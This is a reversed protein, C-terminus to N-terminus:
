LEGATLEYVRNMNERLWVVDHSVVLLSFSKRKQETILVSWIVQRTAQDVSSFSEDLMLLDPDGLLVSIIGMRQIEGGSLEHPYKNMHDRNLGFLGLLRLIEEMDIKHVSQIERISTSLICIPNFASGASQPLYRIDLEWLRNYSSAQTMNSIRCEKWSLEHESLLGKLLTTKGVGSSGYIGVTESLGVSFEPLQCLINRNPTTKFAPVILESITILPPYVKPTKSTLSKTTKISVERLINKEIEYLEDLFDAILDTEHSILIVSTQSRKCFARLFSLMKVSAKADVNSFIEDYIRLPAPRIFGLVFAMRQAEGQSIQHVKRTILSEPDTIGLEALAEYIENFNKFVTRHTQNKWVDKLHTLISVYPNFIQYADQLLYLPHDVGSLITDGAIPVSESISTFTDNPSEVNWYVPKVDALWKGITSKGIGTQGSLGYMKGEELKWEPISVLHKGNVSLSINEINMIM